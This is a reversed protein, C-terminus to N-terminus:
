IRQLQCFCVAASFETSRREAAALKLMERGAEGYFVVTDYGLLRLWKALKALTADTLYKPYESM